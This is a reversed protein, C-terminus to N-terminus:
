QLVGTQSIAENVDNVIQNAKVPKNLFRTIGLALCEAESTEQIDSTLVLGPVTTDKTRLKRLFEQGTMVPMLLDSIICDPPMRRVRGSRGTREAG